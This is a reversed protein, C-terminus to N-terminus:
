AGRAVKAAAAAAAALVTPTEVWIPNMHWVSASAVQLPASAFLTAGAEAREAGPNVGYTFALRGQMVFVEIFTNDVFVRLDVAADGPLLPVSAFAGSSGAPHPNPQKSGSTCAANADPVDVAGKLCCSGVLPPRTVYTWAQCKDGDATCAAQCIHPDTYSVDTVNYDGGPIDTGPMYYTLNEPKVPAGGVTVNLTFSAPDFSFVIATSVNAGAAGGAGVLVAAGFTLPAGSTPLTFVASLESQNGAGQPWDGLWRTENAALSVGGAGAAFLPPEARLAALEPLPEFTLRQLAAHWRTDRPLTQTSAPPVLAWGWYIRRGLGGGGGGVPDFFSKSAYFHM